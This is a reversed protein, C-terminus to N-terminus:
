IKCYLQGGFNLEGPKIPNLETLDSKYRVESVRHPIHVKEIKHIDQHRYFRLSNEAVEYDFKIKISKEVTNGLTKSIIAFLKTILNNDTVKQQISGALQVINTGHTAQRVFLTM